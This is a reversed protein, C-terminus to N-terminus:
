SVDPGFAPAIMGGLMGSTVDASARGRRVPVADAEVIKWASRDAMLACLVANNLKHGGRVSRYAGLIPLGALALDGVADLVKHRACEDSYRLGETNLLKDDDFVVSNEFSAGLAFGASWLRAVDNMCGFTRARAIDRRFSEPNLDLVYSQRGIVPNAFSIEVEARFGAAHPRIEGFSDGIAVQVPKLVQIFRRRAGQEVVGAQDIAAVFAAASGDMIPVEPGDVEITANDIGMGRLAALVHEATSVIPGERDGLVTAFETAIVSKADAQIERDVGELGTRVFIYGADVPAPGLTLSVPKGSHVGVGTVTAQSGLTTQRSFTM